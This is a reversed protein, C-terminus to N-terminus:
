WLCQVLFQRRCYHFTAWTDHEELMAVGVIEKLGGMSSKTIAKAQIMLGNVKKAIESLPDNPENM